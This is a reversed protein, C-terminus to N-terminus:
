PFREVRLHCHLDEAGLELEAAWDETAGAAVSQVDVQVLGVTESGDTASVYIRYDRPESEPNTVTGAVSLQDGDADCSVIEADEVAGEYGEVSGPQDSIEVVSEQASREPLASEDSACAVLGTALVAAIVAATSHSLRM